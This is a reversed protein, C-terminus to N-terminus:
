ETKKGAARSAQWEKLKEEEAAKKAQALRAALEAPSAGDDYAVGVVDLSFVKANGARVDTVYARKGDAAGCVGWLLGAGPLELIQKVEGQPSLVSVRKAEAVLLWGKAFAVGRPEFFQGPGTGKSGFSREFAGRNGRSPPAPSWHGLLTRAGLLPRTLTHARFTCSLIQTYAPHLSRLSPACRGCPPALLM